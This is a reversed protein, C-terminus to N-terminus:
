EIITIGMLGIVVEQSLTELTVHDLEASPRLNWGLLMARCNNGLQVTQPWPNPLPWQHRVDYYDWYETVAGMNGGFGYGSLSWYNLPPILELKEMGGDKYYFRLEGNAIRTQMPNTSGAVLFWISKGSAHVPFAISDPWNDYQSTFAINKDYGNWKFPVGQPTWLLSDTKILNPVQDLTLVPPTKKWFNFCWGSWGDVGIQASVTQVRPSLYKQQFITRVDANFANTIPLPKWFALVPIAADTKAKLAAQREVEAVTIKFIQVQELEGCRVVAFLLHGKDSNALTGEVMGNKIKADTLVNTPDRFSVIDGQPARLCVSEGVKGCVTVPQVRTSPKVTQITIDASRALDTSVSVVTHGFGPLLQYSLKKGNGSIAEIGQACVPLFLKTKAPKALTFRYVVENNKCRFDVSFDPTKFAAHDWASPFRPSFQVLQNPYDPQYGCLGEVVVRALMNTADTFDTALTKSYDTNGPVNYAYMSERYNGKVLKWGEDPWGAQFFALALGYNEAAFYDRTSWVHPVWNSMQCLEGGLRGRRRELAYETYFLAQAAEEPSLMKADIPMYVSMLCADDHRRQYGLAERYEALHGNEKIWLSKMMNRRIKASITHHRRAASHDGAREAMEAAAAHGAYAYATEQTTEGGNYWVNDSAFTAIYSEYVGNSDPDFCEQQWELHLQLAPYLWKELEENGTFRWAHILEDFFLSQMNYMYSNQTIHGKGYFRSAKSQITMRQDVDAVAKIKDSKKNQFSLYYRAASLVSEHRGFVTPGYLTRWGLFPINFMMGGHVYVPPYYVGDLAACVSAVGCDFYPDPTNATVQTGLALCRKLGNSYLTKPNGILSSKITHTSDSIVFAWFLEDQTKQVILENCIMQNKGGKSRLLADVDPWKEADAIVYRGPHSCKGRIQKQEGPKKASSKPSLCFVSSELFFRDKECDQLSFGNPTTEPNIMPDYAWMLNQIGDKHLPSSAGFTWILKDAPNAGQYSLSVTFGAAGALPLANVVLALGPFSGDALEWTVQGPRFFMSIDSFHHLWKTKGNRSFAMMMMGGNHSQHLLRILPLEGALVCGPLHDMYLPRNFIRKGNHCFIAGNKVSYSAQAMEEQEARSFTSGPSVCFLTLSLAIRLHNKLRIM